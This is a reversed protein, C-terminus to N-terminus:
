LELKERVSSGNVCNLYKAEMVYQVKLQVQGIKISCRLTVVDYWYVELTEGFGISSM